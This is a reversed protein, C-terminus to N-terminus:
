GNTGGSTQVSREVRKCVPCRYVTETGEIFILMVAHDHGCTRPLDKVAPPLDRVAPAHAKEAPAM